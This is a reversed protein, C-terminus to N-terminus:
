LREGLTILFRTNKYNGNAATSDRFDHELAAKVYWNQDILWRARLALRTTDDERGTGRSEQNTWGAQATLILNYMAEWDLKLAFSSQLIGSVGSQSTEEVTRGGEVTLTLLETANWITRVRFSPGSVTPLLPDDYYQAIYGVAAEAFTVGSYDWMVGALLEYGKSDPKFGDNNLPRDYRRTNVAGEVFAQSGEDVQHGLRQRLEFLWRDRDNNDLAGNDLYDSREAKASTTSAIEGVDHVYSANFNYTYFKTPTAAGTDDLSGREQHGRAFGAGWNVAEGEDVDIKGSVGGNFDEYNEGKNSAYRGIAAGLVFKLAHNDWDSGVEITPRFRFITDSVQGTNARYVNDDFAVDFEMTTHLLFSSATEAARSTPGIGRPGQMLGIMRLADDFQIGIPDYEPRGRGDVSEGIAQQAQAAPVVLLVLAALAFPGGLRRANGGSAPRKRM